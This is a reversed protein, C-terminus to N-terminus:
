FPRFSRTDDFPPAGEANDHPDDDDDDDERQEAKERAPAALRRV